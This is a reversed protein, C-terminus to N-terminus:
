AARDAPPAGNNQRLELQVDRLVEHISKLWDVMPQNAGALVARMADATLREAPRGVFEQLAATVQNYAQVYGSGSGFLAHAATLFAESYGTLGQAAAFDGGKAAGVQTSFQRSALDYQARPSLPSAAGLALGRAYQSIGQLVGLAAQAAQDQQRTLEAVRQQAAQADAAAIQDNYQKATAVREAGLTRELLDMQALYGETGDALDGYTALIAERLSDREQQAKIDLEALAADRIAGADGSTAAQAARLRQALGQDLVDFQKGANDNAAQLAKVRAATLGDEALGLKQAEAIGASFQATLDNIAQGLTGVGHTADTQGLKILAPMTQNVFNNVEDVVAQIEAPTGFSKGTLARSLTDNGPATFQFQSFASALDASKSPDQFGGPTNQGIQTLRGLSTITVGSAALFQNIQALQQSAQAVEQATDVIQSVTQGLVLQGNQDLSIGTSSFASAPKPGILGGLLGGAGGGLIGALLPGLVAGVGPILTALAGATAGVGAGITPGPGTKGLSSQLFGGALSGLGFGASVGGLLGGFTAGGQQALVQASTAVGPVSGLAANTAAMAGVGNIGTSLFTSLGALVGGDGTLGFMEGLSSLKSTVDTLGLADTLRGVSLVNGASNLLSGMGSGGATDTGGGTLAALGSTLTPAASGFLSNKLPNVVALKAFDTLVSALISRMVSGFNVAAGQGSLFADVLSQGLRDFATGLTGTIAQVSQEAQQFLRAADSSRNLAEAYEQVHAAFDPSNQDFDKRAQAYARELNTARELSVATGDYAKNIRLQADTAQNTAEVLDSYETALRVQAGAKAMAVAKQDVATGAARAAVAFQQDIEAMTRAYGSQASLAKTADVSSRALKQQETILDTEEGRLKALAEGLKAIEAPDSTAALGARLLAQQAQNADRQISLGNAGLAAQFAQDRTSQALLGNINTNVSPAAPIAPINLPALGNRSFQNGQSEVVVIRKGLAIVEPSLGLTQGWFEIAQEVTMTQSGILINNNRLVSTDAGTVSSIYGSPDKTKFGGYQRLTENVNGGTSGLLDRLYSLGGLINQAPDAADVRYRRATDPMLQFLGMAGASSTLVTGSTGTYGGAAPIANPGGAVAIQRLREIGGVLSAIADIALAAAGTIASGLVDALSRGDQGTTTFAKSLGEMSKQLPTLTQAAGKTTTQVVDLTRAFAGARDGADTQLKISYALAASMGPFHETALKQAAKGPDELAAALDRAAEPVTKGMVAALDASTKILDELQQRSGSFGAVGAITTGAVRADATGIGTTAAIAKAAATVDAALSQYDSRTARLSNQLTNLQRATSESAVGLAVVGAVVALGAAFPALALVAGAVGRALQGFGVGMAASTQAIQSGQQIFTTMVPAGSALQQFVDISQIGFQRVANGSRDMAQTAQNHAATSASMAQAVRAQAPGILTAAREAAAGTGAAVTQLRELDRSADRVAQGFPDLRRSLADLGRMQKAQSEVIRVAAREAEVARRTETAIAGEAAVNFRAFGEVAGRADVDLATVATEDVM